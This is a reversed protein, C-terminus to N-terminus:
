KEGRLNRRPSISGKPNCDNMTFAHWKKTIDYKKAHETTSYGGLEVSDPILRTTDNTDQKMGNFVVDKGHTAFYLWADYMDIDHDKNHFPGAKDLRGCGTAALQDHKLAVPWNDGNCDDEGIHRVHHVLMQQPQLVKQGLHDPNIEVGPIQIHHLAYMWALIGLGVDQSIDFARCEDRYGYDKAAVSLLELAKKNLFMPQYWGLTHIEKCQEIHFVGPNGLDHRTSEINGVLPVKDSIGSKEIVSLWRMVQDPRVFTDDDLHIIYKLHSWLKTNETLYVIIEDTKCCPGNAVYYESTCNRTLVYTPENHCSFTTLHPFEEIHCHRMVTRQKFSDEEVVFVNAFFRMWTRASPIIRDRLYSEDDRGTSLVLIAVDENKLGNVEGIIEWPKRHTTNHHKRFDNTPPITVEQLKRRYLVDHYQLRKEWEIEDFEYLEGNGAVLLVLLILLLARIGGAAGLM